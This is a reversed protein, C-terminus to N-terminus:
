TPGPAGVPQLMACVGLVATMGTFGPELMLSSTVQVEPVGVEHAQLPPMELALASQVIVTGTGATDFTTYAVGDFAVPAPGYTLVMILTMVPLLGVPQLM